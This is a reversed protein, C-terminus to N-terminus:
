IRPSPTWQPHSLRPELSSGSLSGQCALPSSEVELPLPVPEMGPRPASIGYTEHSWFWFMFCFCYQVLSLLTKQFFPGYFFFFFSQFGKSNGMFTIAPFHQTLLHKRCYCSIGVCSIPRGMRWWEMLGCRQPRVPNMWLIVIVTIFLVLM